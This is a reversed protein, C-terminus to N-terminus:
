PLAGRAMMVQGAEMRVEALIARSRVRTEEPAMSAVEASRRSMLGRTPATTKM